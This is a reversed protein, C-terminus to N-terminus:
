FHRSTWGSRDATLIAGMSPRRQRDPAASVRWTDAIYTAIYSTSILTAYPPAQRNSQQANWSSFGGLPLGTYQGNHGFDGDATAAGYFNNRM